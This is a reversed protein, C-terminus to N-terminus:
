RLVHGHVNGEMISVIEDENCLMQDGKITHKLAFGASAFEIVKQPEWHNVIGHLVAAAFSDGTGFRDSVVVQYSKSHYFSGDSFYTGELGNMSASPHHRRTFAVHGIDFHRASKQMLDRDRQAKDEANSIWDFVDKVAGENGFLLDTYEMVQEFARRAEARDKWLSRRFNLDFSVKVGQAKAQKVAEISQLLCHESLALTIGSLHLWSIGDLLSGWDFEERDILSIASNKRDYVVRSPRISSGLEIFYSGMRGNGRKICSTGVGFQRLSFLASEGIPGDPLKTIFSTTHGLMSLASLVNSEAGAFSMNLASTNLLRGGDSPTLRLLIEGFAAITRNSM